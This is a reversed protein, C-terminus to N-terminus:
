PRVTALAPTPNAELAYLAYHRVVGDADALARDYLPTRARLWPELRRRLTDDYEVADLPEPPCLLLHTFGRARLTAVLEAASEGRSALGTRRRHALEMTYPRPLYFGRHDQGIVRADPPLNDSMWTGVTRTPEVRALHEERSERGLLVPLGSRPRAAAIAAEGALVLLLLGVAARGPARGRRALEAAAWAALISWPGVAALVFRMSQRQTLCAALFAFGLTAIAVLGRRPRLILLAPALM